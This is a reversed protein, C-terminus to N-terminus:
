SPEVILLFQILRAVFHVQSRSHCRRSNAALRCDRQAPQAVRRGRFRESSKLVAQFEIRGAIRCSACLRKSSRQREVRSIGFRVGIQSHFVHVQFHDIIGYIFKALRRREVRGGADMVGIESQGQHEQPPEPFGLRLGSGSHHQVCGAGLGV